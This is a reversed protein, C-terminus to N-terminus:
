PVLVTDGRCLDVNQQLNEGKLVEDYDFPIRVEGRPSNWVIWMQNRKAFATFGGALSMAQVVNLQSQPTFTGPRRVEGMVYIQYSRASVLSVDVRPTPVFAQVKAAIVRQIQGISMGAANVDGVLPLSIKGDPRVLVQERSHNPENWVNVRIVDGAELRFNGRCRDKLARYNFDRTLTSGCSTVLLLSSCILLLIGVRTTM